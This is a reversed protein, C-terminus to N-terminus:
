TVEHSSLTKSKMSAMEQYQLETWDDFDIESSELEDKLKFDDEINFASASGCMLQSLTSM